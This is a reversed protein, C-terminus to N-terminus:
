RCTRFYTQWKDQSYCMWVMLFRDNLQRRWACPFLPFFLLCKRSCQMKVWGTCLLLKSNYRQLMFGQRDSTVQQGEGRGDGEWWVSFFMRYVTHQTDGSHQPWGQHVFMTRKTALLATHQQVNRICVVMQGHWAHATSHRWELRTWQVWSGSDAAHQLMSVGIAGSCECPVLCPAWNWSPELERRASNYGRYSSHCRRIFWCILLVCWVLKHPDPSGKHLVYTGDVAARLSPGNYAMFVPVLLCFLSFVLCPPPELGM